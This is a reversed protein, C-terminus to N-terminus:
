PKDPKIRVYSLAPEAAVPAAATAPAAVEV